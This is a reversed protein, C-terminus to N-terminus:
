FNSPCVSLSCLASSSHRSQLFLCHRHNRGCKFSNCTSLLADFHNLLPQTGLMAGFIWSGDRIVLSVLPIMRRHSKLLTLTWIIAQSVLQITSHLSMLPSKSTRFFSFHYVYKLYIITVSPTKSICTGFFVMKRFAVIGLAIVSIYEVGILVVLFALIRTNRNYLAFVQSIRVITLRCLCHIIFKFSM